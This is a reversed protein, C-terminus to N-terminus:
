PTYKYSYLRNTIDATVTVSPLAFSSPKLSFNLLSLAPVDTILSITKRRNPGHILEDM